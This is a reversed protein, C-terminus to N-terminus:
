LKLRALEHHRWFTLAYTATRELDLETTDLVDLNGLASLKREQRIHHLFASRMRPDHFRAGHQAHLRRLIENLQCSLVLLWSSELLRQRIDEDLLPAAPMAIVAGRQLAFEACLAKLVTRTHAEGYTQRLEDLSVRERLQIEIELDLYTTSITEAIRRILAYKSTGDYGSIILNRYPEFPREHSMLHAM